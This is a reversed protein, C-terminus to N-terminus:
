CYLHLDRYLSVAIPVVEDVSDNAAANGNTTVQGVDALSGAATIISHLAGM